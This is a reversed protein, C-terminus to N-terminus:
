HPFYADLLILSHQIQFLRLMVQVSAVEMTVSRLHLHTLTLNFPSLFTVLHVFHTDLLVHSQPIPLLTFM